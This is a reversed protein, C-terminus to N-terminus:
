VERCKAEESETYSELLAVMEHYHCRRAIDLATEGATNKAHIALNDMFLLQRAMTLRNNAAALHLLTNGNPVYCQNIDINEDSLYAEFTQEDGELISYMVPTLGKVDYQNVVSTEESGSQKKAADLKQKAAQAQAEYYAEHRSQLHEKEQWARALLKHGLLDPFHYLVYMDVFLHKLDNKSELLSFNKAEVFCGWENGQFIFCVSPNKLVHYLDYIRAMVDPSMLVRAEKEDDSFLDFTEEFALWELKVRKLGKKIGKAKALLSDSVLITVGKVPTHLRASLILGTPTIHSFSASYCTVHAIDQVLGDKGGWFVAQVGLSPIFGKESAASFCVALNYKQSAPQYHLHLHKAIEQYVLQKYFKYQMEYSQKQNYTKRQFSGLVLIVGLVALAYIIGTQITSSKFLVECFISIISLLIWFLFIFLVSSCGESSHSATPIHPYIEKDYFSLFEEFAKKRYAHFEEM